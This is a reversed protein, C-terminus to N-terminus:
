IMMLVMTMIDDHDDVHDDDVHDDFPRFKIIKIEPYIRYTPPKLLIRLSYVFEVLNGRTFLKKVVDGISIISVDRECNDIIEILKIEKCLIMKIITSGIRNIFVCSHYTDCKEKFLQTKIKKSLMLTDIQKMLKRLYICENQDDFYFSIHYPNKNYEHGIKKRMCEYFKFQNTKLLLTNTDYCLYSKNNQMFVMTIHDMDVQDHYKIITSRMISIIWLIIEKPLFLGVIEPINQLFWM